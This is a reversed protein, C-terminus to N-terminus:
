TCGFNQRATNAGRAHTEERYRMEHRLPSSATLLDLRTKSSLPHSPDDDEDRGPKPVSYIFNPRRNTNRSDREGALPVIRVVVSQRSKSGRTGDFLGREAALKPMTLYNLSVASPPRTAEHGCNAESVVM